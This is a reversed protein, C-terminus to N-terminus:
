YTLNTSIKIRTINATRELNERARKPYTFILITILSLVNQRKPNLILM